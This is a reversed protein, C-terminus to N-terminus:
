FGFPFYSINFIKAIEYNMYLGTNWLILILVGRKDKDLSNIRKPNILSKIDCELASAAKRETTNLNEEGLIMRKQPIEVDPKKKSIYKSKIYECYM